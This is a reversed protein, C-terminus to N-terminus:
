GQQRSLSIAWLFTCYIRNLYVLSRRLVSTSLIHFEELILQMERFLLEQSVRFCSLQLAPYMLGKKSFEMVSARLCGQQFVVLSYLSFM